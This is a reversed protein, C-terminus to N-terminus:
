EGRPSWPRQRAPEASAPVGDEEVAAMLRGVAKDLVDLTSM